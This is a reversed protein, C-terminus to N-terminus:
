MQGKDKTQRENVIALVIYSGHRGILGGSRQPASTEGPADDGASLLSSFLSNKCALFGGKFIDVKLPSM